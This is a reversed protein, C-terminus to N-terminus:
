NDSGTEVRANTENTVEMIERLSIDQKNRTDVFCKYSAREFLSAFFKSVVPSDYVNLGSCAEIIQEIVGM